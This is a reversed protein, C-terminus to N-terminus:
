PRKTMADQKGVVEKIDGKGGQKGVEETEGAM